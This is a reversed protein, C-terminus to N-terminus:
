QVDGGTGEDPPKLAFLTRTGRTWARIAFPMEEGTEIEVVAERVFVAGDDTRAEAHITFTRARSRASSPTEPESLIRIGPLGVGAADVNEGDVNEDDVPGDGNGAAPADGGEALSDAFGQVDGLASRVLAPASPAFPMRQRGYVTVAPAVTAFLDP